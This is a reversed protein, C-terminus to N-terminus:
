DREIVIDATCSALLQQEAVAANLMCSSASEDAERINTTRQIM